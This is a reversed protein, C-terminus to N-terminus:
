PAPPGTLNAGPGPLNFIAFGAEQQGLRHALSPALAPDGHDDLYRYVIRRGYVGSRANVFRFDAQAAAAQRGADGSVPGFGGIVISQGTAGPVVVKPPAPPRSAWGCGAPRAVAVPRRGRAAALRPGRGIGM